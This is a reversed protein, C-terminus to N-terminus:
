LRYTPYIPWSALESTRLVLFGLRVLRFVVEKEIRAIQNDLVEIKPRISIAVLALIILM